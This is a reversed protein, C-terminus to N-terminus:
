LSLTITEEGLEVLCQRRMPVLCRPLLLFQVHSPPMDTEYDGRALGSWLAEDPKLDSGTGTIHWIDSHERVEIVGGKPLAKELCLCALIVAQALPRTLSEPGHWVLELRRDQMTDNWIRCLDESRTIQGEAAMGFAIRFMSIRANASSASESVLSMEPSDPIGSLSLLELGNSVAGIPSILDHCIRSGILAAINETSDHSM